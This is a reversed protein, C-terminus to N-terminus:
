RTSKRDLEALVHRLLHRESQLIVAGASRNGAEVRNPILLLLDQPRHIDVEPLVPLEIEPDPHSHRLCRIMQQDLRNQPVPEIIFLVSPFQGGIFSSSRRYVVNAKDANM